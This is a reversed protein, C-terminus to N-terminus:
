RADGFAFCADCNSPLDFASFQCQTQDPAKRGERQAEHNKGGRWRRAGDVGDADATVRRGDVEGRHEVM